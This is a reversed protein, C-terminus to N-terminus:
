EMPGLRRKNTTGVSNRYHSQSTEGGPDFIFKELYRRDATMIDLLDGRFHMQM